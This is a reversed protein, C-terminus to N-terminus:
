ILYESLPIEFSFTSGKGLESEVRIAGGIKELFEKCLRLGLGTGPENFTGYTNIRQGSFIKGIMDKTMGVGTDSVSITIKHNGRKSFVRIEGGNGTYKIANSMLNRLVLKLMDSDAIFSENEDTENRFIIGKWEAQKAYLEFNEDVIKHLSIRSLNPTYGKLQSQAWSLLNEIFSFTVNMREMLKGSLEKVEDKTFDGEEFMSLFLQLSALPSKFDHSVISFLKTKLEDSEELIQKQQIIEENLRSLLLLQNKRKRNSSLALFAIVLCLVMVTSIFFAFQNKKNLEAKQRSDEARLLNNENDARDIEMKTEFDAVTRNLNLRNLSDQFQAALKQDMWANMYNGLGAEAEAMTNYAEQVGKKYDQFEFMKLSITAHDLAPKYQKIKLYSKGLNEEANAIGQKNLNLNYYYISKKFYDISSPVSDLQYYVLGINNLSYGFAAPDNNEGANIFAQRYYILAKKYDKINYYINGIDSLVGAVNTHRIKKWIELSLKCYYLAKDLNGELSYLNGIDHAVGAQIEINKTKKSLALANLGYYMMSDNKGLIQYFFGIHMYGEIQGDIEHNSECLRIGDLYYARAKSLEGANIYIKGFAYYTNAIGRLNSTKKSLELAQNAYMFASDKYYSSYHDSLILLSSIRIWSPQNSNVINVLSDRSFRAAYTGSIVTFSLLLAYM